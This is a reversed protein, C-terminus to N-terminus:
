PEYPGVLPEFPGDLPELPGVLPEFPGVYTQRDHYIKLLATAFSLEVILLPLSFINTM